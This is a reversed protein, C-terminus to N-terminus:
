AVNKSSSSSEDLALKKRKNAKAKQNETNLLKLKIKKTLKKIYISNKAVFFKDKIKFSFRRLKRGIIKGTYGVFGFDDHSNDQMDLIWDYDSKTKNKITYFYYVVCMDEIDLNSSLAKFAIEEFKEFIQSQMAKVYKNFTEEDGFQTDIIPSSFNDEMNYGLCRGHDARLIQEYNFSDYETIKSGFLKKNSKDGLLGVKRNKVEQKARSKIFYGIIDIKKDFFNFVLDQMTGHYGIDVFAIGDKKLNIGFSKMYRDFSKSQIKRNEEYIKKFVENEKLKKFLKSNKFSLCTKDIEKGFSEKVKDVQENSFGISLMFRRPTMFFSFFKFLSEFNEEDVPKVSATMVSNRSGFFYHTKIDAENQNLEKKIECYRDFLKKLFQGERSMFLIDKKGSNTLSKYLRDTFLFLPFAHNSFNNEPFKNFIKDWEFDIIQKSRRM